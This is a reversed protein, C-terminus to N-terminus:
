NSVSKNITQNFYFLKGDDNMGQIVVHYQKANDSNYFKFRLRGDSSMNVDHNWYLLTRNDPTTVTGPTHYRPQAFERTISYGNFIYHDFNSEATMKRIEDSRTRTYVMLAGINGGNYPAFWVPPPMYRILSLDTLNFYAIASIDTLVENLYIYPFIPNNQQVGIKANAPNSHAADQLTNISRYRFEINPYDGFIQLSPFRGRIYDFIGINLSPNNVLDLTYENDAKYKATVHEDILKQVPSIKANNVTVTKLLIVNAQLRLRMEKQALAFYYASIDPQQFTTFSQSKIKAISDALTPFLKFNLKEIRKKKSTAEVYLDSLGSHNFDRMIFRGAADPNIYGMFKTSDQNLIMLKLQINDKNKLQRQYNVAEGAIYQSQEVPYKLSMPENDIVNKWSFHRWGNTLMVMDLQQALTDSANTFYYGPDHVEGKLEPSLLLASHINQPNNDKFADGDTVAVSFNGSVPHGEVDKLAMSFSNYGKAFFSLTDTKLKPSLFDHKDIFLIREAQPLGDHDFVTLRVIGDSFEAKPLECIAMGKSLQLSYTIVLGNSQVASLVCDAFKEPLGAFGLKLQITNTFQTAQLYIGSKKVVPLPFDQHSGDPFSVTAKYPNDALAEIEFQGVGDHLTKFSGAVKGALDKIEGTIKAPMGKDDEAKFAIKAPYGNIADGGEPYFDVHWTQTKSTKKIAAPLGDDMNQIFMREEFYGKRGFNIMWATFATLKYWGTKIKNSLAIDGHAKGNQLPLKNQIILNGATDTLQIYVIKSLNSPKGYAMTYVKYWLTEGNSYLPKDMHVFVKEQPYKKYYNVLSTKLHNQFTDAQLICPVPTGSANHPCCWFFLCLFAINIVLRSHFRM